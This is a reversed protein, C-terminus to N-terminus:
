GDSTPTRVRETEASRGPVWMRFRLELSGVHIADGDFLRLRGTVRAARVFTGNTSGLDELFVEGAASTQIRAHRRSVGPADLWVDCGPDRGIVNDGEGLAFTRDNLALWFRRADPPSPAGGALESVEGCFAYGVGHVTRILRPDRPTDGLARRLEAVLVNLNTDVVFTDRWLQAHLDSKGVVGPRREVLILLLDFAKKSLHVERDGSRLQRAGADLVFEAFRVRM